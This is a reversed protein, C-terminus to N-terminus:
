QDQLETRLGELSRRVMDNGQALRDTLLEAIPGAFGLPLHLVTVGDKNAVVCETPIPIVIKFEAKWAEKLFGAKRAEKEAKDAM